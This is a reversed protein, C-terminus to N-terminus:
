AGVGYYVSIGQEMMGDMCRTRAEFREFARKCSEWQRSGELSRFFTGRGITKPQKRLTVDQTDMVSVGFRLKYGYRRRKEDKFPSMTMRVRLGILHVSARPRNDKANM